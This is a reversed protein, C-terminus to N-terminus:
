GPAADSGAQDGKSCYLKIDYYSIIGGGNM